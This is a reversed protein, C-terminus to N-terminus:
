RFVAFREALAFRELEPDGDRNVARLCRREAHTTYM